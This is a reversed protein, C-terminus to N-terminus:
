SSMRYREAVEILGGDLLAQMQLAREYPAWGRVTGLHVENLLDQIVHEPTNDPILWAPM